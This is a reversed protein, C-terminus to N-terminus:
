FFEFREINKVKNFIKRLFYVFVVINANATKYLTM